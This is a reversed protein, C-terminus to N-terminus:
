LGSLESNQLAKMRPVGAMTGFQNNPTRCKEQRYREAQVNRVKNQLEQLRLMLMFQRM